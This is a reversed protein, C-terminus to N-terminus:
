KTSGLLGRIKHIRTAGKNQPDPYGGYKTFSAQEFSSLLVLCVFLIISLLVPCFSLFVPCFSLVYRLSPFWCSTSKIERWSANSLTAKNSAKLITSWRPYANCAAGFHSVLSFVLVCIAKFTHLTQWSSRDWRRLRFCSSLLAPPGFWFRTISVM